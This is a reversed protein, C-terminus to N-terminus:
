TLGGFFWQVLRVVGAVAVGLIFVVVFLVVLWDAYVERDTIDSELWNM